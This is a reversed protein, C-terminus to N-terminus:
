QIQNALLIAQKMKDENGLVGDKFMTILDGRNEIVRNAAALDDQTDQLEVVMECMTSVTGITKIEKGDSVVLHWDQKQDKSLALVAEALLEIPKQPDAM